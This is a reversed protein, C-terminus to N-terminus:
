VKGGHHISRIFGTLLIICWTFTAYMHWICIDYVYTMQRFKMNYTWLPDPLSITSASCSLTWDTSSLKMSSSRSLEQFTPGLSAISKPYSSTKTPHSQWWFGLFRSVPLCKCDNYLHNKTHAHLNKKKKHPYVWWQCGHEEQCYFSCVVSVQFVM